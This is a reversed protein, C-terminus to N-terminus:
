ATEKKEYSSMLTLRRAGDRQCFKGLRNGEEDVLEFKARRDCPVGGKGEKEDCSVDLIQLRAM